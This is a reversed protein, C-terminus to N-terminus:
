AHPCMGRLRCCLIVRVCVYMCVCYVFVSAKGNICAQDIRAPVAGEVQLVSNCACVCVYMCLVRICIGQWKHISPRHM